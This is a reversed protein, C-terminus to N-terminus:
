RKPLPSPLSAPAIAGFTRGNWEYSQWDAEGNWAGVHWHTKLKVSKGINEWRYINGELIGVLDFDSKNRRLVYYRGNLQAGRIKNFVDSYYNAEIIQITGVNEIPTIEMKSESALKLLADANTPVGECEAIFRYVDHYNTFKIPLDPNSAKATDGIPPHWSGDQLRYPASRGLLGGSLVLACCLIIEYKM